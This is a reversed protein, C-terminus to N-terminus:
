FKIRRVLGTFAIALGGFVFLNGYLNAEILVEGGNGLTSARVVIFIWGLIFILQLLKSKYMNTLLRFGLILAFLSVILGAPRYSNHLFTGSIGILVGFIASVITKM